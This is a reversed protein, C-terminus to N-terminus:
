IITTPMRAMLMMPPLQLHDGRMSLLPLEGNYVDIGLIGGLYSICEYITRLNNAISIANDRQYTYASNNLQVEV